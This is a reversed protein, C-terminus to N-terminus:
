GCGGTPTTTGADGFSITGLKACESPKSDFGECLVEGYAAPDRAGNYNAGEIFITPSGRVGLINNLELEDALITEWENAECDKIKAVDLELDDAVAEWCVDANQYNCASNMELVFDFYDSEGMYKWVCLERLGQNLEQVGHMSCYKDEDDLCYTPGGGQYNSYIVYHPNFDAKGELLRFLPEIAEEAINGYPCYSMVYFDIQPRNDGKTIGIKAEIEARKDADLVYSAGTAADLLIYNNESARFAAPVQPNNQWAYSNEVNEFVYAPAYELNHEEILAKGEKSEADVMEVEMNLFAQRLANVLPAADCSSCEASNVVTLKVSADEQYECKSDKKGPNVCTGVKGQEGRCDVDSSCAPIDACVPHDELNACIARKFDSESRGGAYQQGNVYITPSGSAQVAMSKAISEKLLETGEDGESCERLKAADIGATEACKDITGVLDQMKKNQCVIFDMFTDPFHKQACLHLINGDVEPQGHLSAFGTDTESAIFNIEFDINDGLEDLVPKIADEVQTGYPCQSMVYFDLEVTGYQEPNDVAIPESGGRTFVIVLIAVIALGAIVWPVYNTKKKPQRKHVHSSEAKHKKVHPKHGHSKSKHVPKAPKHEASKHAHEKPKQAHQEKSHKKDSM